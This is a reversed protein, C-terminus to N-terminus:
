VTTATVPMAAAEPAAQHYWCGLATALVPAVDVATAAAPGTCPADLPGAPAPATPLGGDTSTARTSTSLSVSSVWATPLKRERRPTTNRGSTLPRMVCSLKLSPWRTRLPCNSTCNSSWNGSACTWCLRASSDIAWALWFRLWSSTACFKMLWRESSSLAALKCTAWALSAKDCAVAARKFIIAGNSPVTPM